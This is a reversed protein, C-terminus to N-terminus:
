RPDINQSLAAEFNESPFQRVKFQGDHGEARLLRFMKEHERLVPLLAQLCEKSHTTIFLQVGFRKAFRTLSAWVDEMRKYYIGNELEDILIVGNPQSAIGLLISVMKQVGGSMLAVPIKAALWPVDGFIMEIGSQIEVSLGKLQPFLKQFEEVIPQEKKKKSFESFQHAPELPGISAIFSTSYFAAQTKRVVSGIELKGQRSLRPRVAHAKQGHEKYKFTIPLVIENQSEDDERPRAHSNLRIINKIKADYSVELSNSDQATDKLYINISKHQDLNHFLDAWLGDYGAQSTALGITGMGRWARLRFAIEPGAGLTLFIAELIATKGSGNEGVIVNIQGLNDLHLREYCRFNSIRLSHIM